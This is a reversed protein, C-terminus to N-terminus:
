EEVAWLRSSNSLSALGLSLGAEGKRLLGWYFGQEQNGRTESWSQHKGVHGQTTHHAGKEWSM